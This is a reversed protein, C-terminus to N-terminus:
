AQKISFEVHKIGKEKAIDRMIYVEWQKVDAELAKALAKRIEPGPFDKGTEYRSIANRSVGVKKALDEQSLDEGERWAKLSNAFTM